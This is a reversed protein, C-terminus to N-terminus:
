GGQFPPKERDYDEPTDLDRLVSDDTVNLYEIMNQNQELFLRMTGPPQLDQIDAWLVRDILWPHGRRRHFSPIVIRAQTVRYTEILRKVIEAKIQPQDGLVVLCAQSSPDIAALGVRLSIIMDDQQYDPNFVVRAPLDALERSIENHMSGTVVVTEDLEAQILVSAVQGIVTNDGWPLTMKPRGMRTSLGAALVVASIM